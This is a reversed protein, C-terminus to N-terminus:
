EEIDDTDEIFRLPIFLSNIRDEVKIECVMRGALVFNRVIMTIELGEIEKALSDVIVGTNSKKRKKDYVGSIRLM